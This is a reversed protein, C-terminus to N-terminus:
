AADIKAEAGYARLFIDAADTAAKDIDAATPNEIVGFMRREVLDSELLGKFNLAATLPEVQRLRGADMQTQLFEAVQRWAKAPGREYLLKGLDSRGCDGIAMRRVAVVDPLLVLSLYGTAFRKLTQRLDVAPSLAGFVSEAHEALADLMVEVFLEQKSQFYSYLTAKSGGVRESIASMSAREFGQERFVEAAAELIAQRRADTKIRM